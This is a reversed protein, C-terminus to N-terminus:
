SHVTATRLRTELTKTCIAHAEWIENQGKSTPFHPTVKHAAKMRMGAKAREQKRMAALRRTKVLGM